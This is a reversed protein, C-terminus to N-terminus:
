CRWTPAGTAPSWPTPAPPRSRRSTPRSTACRRRAPAPGRRRDRHRPAEAESVGERVQRGAPRALLEPQLPLGEQNGEPGEHLDDDGGDEDDHRRRLPLALLQVQQKDPRPRGGFRQHLHSGQWPQARQAQQHRRCARAGRFLRQGPPHLAGGSRDVSKLANLSETPSLKNDIGTVEFKVGAPNNASFKEAFFQYSKLQNTGVPGMLGSLADIRVMKVVEGQLPKAGPKAQALVSGASVALAAGVCTALAGRFLSTAHPLM